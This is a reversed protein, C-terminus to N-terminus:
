LLIIHLHPIVFTIGGIKKEPGVIVIIIFNICITSVDEVFNVTNKKVFDIENDVCREM